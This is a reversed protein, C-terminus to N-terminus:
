YKYFPYRPIFSTEKLITPKLSKVYLAKKYSPSPMEFNLNIHRGTSIRNKLISIVTDESIGNLNAIFPVNGITIPISVNSSKHAGNYNATVEIEYTIKIVKCHEESTIPTPPVRITDKIEFDDTEFPGFEKKVIPIKETWTEKRRIESYLAVLNLVLRVQRVMIKSHNVVKVIFHVLEGPVYGTQPIGLSLVLPKSICPGCCFYKLVEMKAPIRLVPLRNLDLPQLVNLEMSHSKNFLLPREVIIKIDYRIRGYTGEFTSPCMPPLPCEFTYTHTGAPLDSICEKAHICDTTNEFFREEDSRYYSGIVPTNKSDSPVAHEDWRVKAYGRMRLKVGKVTMSEELHIIARGRVIQGAYYIGLPNDDYIVEFRIGM